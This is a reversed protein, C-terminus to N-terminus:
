AERDTMFRKHYASDLESMPMITFVDVCKFAKDHAPQGFLRAGAKLYSQMLGPLYNQFELDSLEERYNFDFGVFAYEPQAEISFSDLWLDRRRMYTCLLSVQVPDESWISSCGFLHGAKSIKVYEALGKWLLAMVMGNRHEPSICARGMELKSGEIGLFQGLVFESETYFQSVRESHRLRYTGVPAGSKQDIVMLHDAELDFEDFDLGESSLPSESGLESFFVQHRLKFLALLDSPTLALRVLYNKKEIQFKYGPSYSNFDEIKM